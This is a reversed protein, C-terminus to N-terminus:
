AVKKPQPKKLQTVKPRPKPDVSFTRLAQLEELAKVIDATDRVNGIGYQAAMELAKAYDVLQQLRSDTM